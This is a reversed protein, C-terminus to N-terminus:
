SEVYKWWTQAHAKQWSSRELSSKLESCVKNSTSFCPEDGAQTCIRLWALIAFLFPRWNRDKYELNPRKIRSSCYHKPSIHSGTSLYDFHTIIFWYLRPFPSGDPASLVVSFYLNECQSLLLIAAGSLPLCWLSPHLSMCIYRGLVTKFAHIRAAFLRADLFLHLVCTNAGWVCMWGCCIRIKADYINICTPWPTQASAHSAWSTADSECCAPLLCADAM